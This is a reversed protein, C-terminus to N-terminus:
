TVVAIERGFVVPNPRLFLIMRRGTVWPPSPLQDPSLFNPNIQRSSQSSYAALEPIFIEHGSQLPGRWVELVKVRGDITEGEDVVVVDSSYWCSWELHFTAALGAWGSLTLMLGPILLALQLLHNLTTGTRKLNM